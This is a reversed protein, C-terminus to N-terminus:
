HTARKLVMTFVESSQVIHELILRDLRTFFEAMFPFTAIELFVFLSFFFAFYSSFVRRLNRTTKGPLIILLLAPLSIAYCLVITDMRMGIPFLLAYNEIDGIQNFFAFCLVARFVAVTSLCLFYFVIVPSFLSLFRFGRSLLSRPPSSSKQPM